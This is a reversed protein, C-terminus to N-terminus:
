NGPGNGRLRQSERLFSDIKHMSNLASKSWGEAKIVREAEERMPGLHAPYTTLDFLAHTLAQPRFRSSCLAGQECRVESVMSSTHIAAMNISLIRACIAPAAREKGEALELLWSILDNQESSSGKDWLPSIYISGAERAM